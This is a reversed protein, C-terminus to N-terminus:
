IQHYFHVAAIIFFLAPVILLAYADAYFFWFVPTEDSLEYLPLWKWYANYFLFCFFTACMLSLVTFIMPRLTKDPARTSDSMTFM